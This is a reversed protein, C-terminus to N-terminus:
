TTDCKRLVGHWLETTPSASASSSRMLWRASASSELMTERRVVLISDTDGHQRWKQAEVGITRSLEVLGKYYKSFVCTALTHKLHKLHKRPVHQLTLTKHINYFYISIKYINCYNYLHLHKISTTFTSRSKAYTAITTCTHQLSRNEINWRNKWVYTALTNIQINCINWVYTAFIKDPDQTHKAITKKHTKILTESVHKLHKM